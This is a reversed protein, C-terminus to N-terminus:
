WVDIGSRNRIEIGIKEKKSYSHFFVKWRTFRKAYYDYSDIIDKGSNFTKNNFMVNTNKKSSERVDILEKNM